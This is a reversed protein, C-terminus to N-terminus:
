QLGLFIIIVSNLKGELMLQLLTVQEMMSMCFFIRTTVITSDRVLLMLTESVQPLTDWSTVSWELM